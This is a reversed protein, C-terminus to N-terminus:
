KQQLLLGVVDDLAAMEHDGDRTRAVLGAGSVLVGLDQDVLDSALAAAIGSRHLARAVDLARALDDPSGPVIAVRPKPRASGALHAALRGADLGLGCATAPTDEGGPAYRGGKGWSLGDADFEFVAGTYYDFDRPMAFDIVLERGSGSLARAVSAVEAIAEGAAPLLAEALAALNDLLALGGPRLAVDVFPAIQPQRDVAPRLAALGGEAVGDFLARLDGNGSATLAMAVSRAVGVHGLRVVPRLGLAELAECAVAAVELEGLAPPAGLYEAGCQWDERDDDESFRFVSQVYFLRVPMPLGAEAAARAAPITSDPRLVVREGSWGDWDLFSYVRSLMQPTLAGTATFLSFNEITPTRIEDYGWRSAAARFGDEVRRFARMEPGMLDRMGRSRRLASHSPATM